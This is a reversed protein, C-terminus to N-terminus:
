TQKFGTVKYQIATGSDGRPDPTFGPGPIYTISATGRVRVSGSVASSSVVAIKANQFKGSAYYNHPVSTTVVIVAGTNTVQASDTFSGQIVGALKASRPDVLGQITAGYHFGNRFISADGTAL